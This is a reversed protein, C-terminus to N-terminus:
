APGRDKEDLLVSANAAMHLARNDDPQWKFMEEPKQLGRM